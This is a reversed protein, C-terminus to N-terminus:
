LPAPRGNLQRGDIQEPTEHLSEFVRQPAHSTNQMAKQKALRTVFIVGSAFGLHHPNWSDFM